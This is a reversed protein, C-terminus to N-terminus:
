IKDQVIINKKIVKRVAETKKNKPFLQDVMELDALSNSYDGKKYYLLARHYYLDYYDPNIEIARNFHILATNYEEKMYHIIGLYLEAYYLSKNESLVSNLVTQARSYKKTKVLFVGYNIRPIIGMPAMELAKLHTKEAKEIEGNMFYVQALSSYTSANPELEIAKQFSQIADPYKELSAQTIALENYCDHSSLSPCLKTYIKLAEELMENELYIRALLREGEAGFKGTNLTQIAEEIKGLEKLQRVQKIDQSIISPSLLLFLIFICKV